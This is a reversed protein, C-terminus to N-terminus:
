QDVEHILDLLESELWEKSTGANEGSDCLYGWFILVGHTEVTGRGKIADSNSYEDCLDNL